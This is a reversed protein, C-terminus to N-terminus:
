GEYEDLESLPSVDLAELEENLGDMLTSAEGIDNGRVICEEFGISCGADGM